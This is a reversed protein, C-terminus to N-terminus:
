RTLLQTNKRLLAALEGLEGGSDDRHSTLAAFGGSLLTKAERQSLGAVDRLVAELKRIDPRGASKVDRVGASKNMPFTVVSGEILKAQYIRRIEWNPNAPDTEYQYQQAIYGVSMGKIAPRPQMKMLAYIDNGRTTEALTADFKVGTEDETLDTYLGIPVMDDAGQAWYDGGHNLLLPPWDETSKIESLSQKFAGPEFLDRGQDINGYAVLYGSFERPGSTALKIEGARLRKYEIEM